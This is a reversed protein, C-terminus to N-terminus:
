KELFISNFSIHNQITPEPTNPCNQQVTIEGFSIFNEKTISVPIVDTAINLSNPLISNVNM